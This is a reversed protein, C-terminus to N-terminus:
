TKVWMLISMIYITHRREILFDQDIRFKRMGTNVKSTGSESVATM